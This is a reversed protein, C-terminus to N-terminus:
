VNGSDADVNQAFSAFDEAMGAPLNVQIAVNVNTDRKLQGTLEAALRVAGLRTGHDDDMDGTRSRKKAVLADAVVEALRENPAGKAALHAAISDAVKPEIRQSAQAVQSPSFGAEIAAGRCSEGEVRAQVYKEM